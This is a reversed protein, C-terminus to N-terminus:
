VRKVKSRRTGNPRSLKSYEDLECCTGGSLERAIKVMRLEKEKAVERKVKHWEVILAERGLWNVGHKFACNERGCLVGSDCKRPALPAFDERHIEDNYVKYWVRGYFLKYNESIPSWSSM